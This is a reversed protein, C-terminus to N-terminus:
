NLQTVPRDDIIQQNFFCKGIGTASRGLAHTQLRDRALIAPEFKAPPM